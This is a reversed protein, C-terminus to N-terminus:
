TLFGRGKAKRNHIFSKGLVHWTPKYLEEIDVRWQEPDLYMLVEEVTKLGAVAEVLEEIGQVSTPPVAPVEPESVNQPFFM